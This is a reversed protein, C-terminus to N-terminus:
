GDGGAIGRVGGSDAGEAEERLAKVEKHLRQLRNILRQKEKEDLMQGKESNLLARDQIMKEVRDDIREQVSKKRGNERADACKCTWSCFRLHKGNRTREYEICGLRRYFTEGCHACVREVLNFKKQSIREEGHGGSPMVLLKDPIMDYLSM